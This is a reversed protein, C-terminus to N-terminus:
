LDLVHLVILVNRLFLVFRLARLINTHNFSIALILASGVDRGWAALIRRDDGSCARRTKEVGMRPINPIITKSYGRM